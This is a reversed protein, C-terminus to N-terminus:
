TRISQLAHLEASVVLVTGKRWKPPQHLCDQLGGHGCIVVDDRVLSRILYAGETGQQEESLEEREVIALSRARALPGVTETCRVAPSSYIATVPFGDLAEVLAAAQRRGREDLPRLRDDLQWETRDGAWAHRVLLLTM